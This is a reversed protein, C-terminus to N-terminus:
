RTVSNKKEPTLYSKWGHAGLYFVGGCPGMYVTRGDAHGNSHYIGYRKLFFTRTKNTERVTIECDLKVRKSCESIDDVETERKNSKTGYNQLM